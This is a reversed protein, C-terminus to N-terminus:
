NSCFLGLPWSKPSKETMEMTLKCKCKVLKGRQKKTFFAIQIANTKRFHKIKSM